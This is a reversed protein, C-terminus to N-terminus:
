SRRRPRSGHQQFRYKNRSHLGRGVTSYLYRSRPSCFGRSRDPYCAAEIAELLQQKSRITSIVREDVDASWQFLMDREIADNVRKEPMDEATRYVALYIIRTAIIVWKRFISDRVKLMDLKMITHRMLVERIAYEPWNKGERGVREWSKGIDKENLVGNIDVIAFVEEPTAVNHVNEAWRELPFENTGDRKKPVLADMLEEVFDVLDTEEDVQGEQKYHGCLAQVIGGIM